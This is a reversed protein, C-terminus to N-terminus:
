APMDIQELQVGCNRGPGFTRQFRGVGIIRYLVGELTITEGIAPDPTDVNPLEIIAALGLRPIRCWEVFDFDCIM